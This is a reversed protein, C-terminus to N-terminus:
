KFHLVIIGKEIENFHEFSQNSQLFEYFVKNINRDKVLPYSYKVQPPMLNQHFLGQVNQILTFSAQSEKLKDRDDENLIEM